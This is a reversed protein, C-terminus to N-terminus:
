KFSNLQSGWTTSFSSFIKFDLSDGWNKTKTQPYDFIPDIKDPLPKSGDKTVLHGLFLIKPVGFVYKSVNVTLGYGNLKRFVAHVHTKHEEKSESAILIDNLYAYCFPLDGLIENLFRQFAQVAGCLRERELYRSINRLFNSRTRPHNRSRWCSFRQFQQRLAVVEQYLPNSLDERPNTSLALNSSTSKDM